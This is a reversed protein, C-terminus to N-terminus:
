VNIFDTEFIKLCEFNLMSVRLKAIYRVRTHVVVKTCHHSSTTIGKVLPCNELFDLMFRCASVKRFETIRTVGTLLGATVRQLELDQNFAVKANVDVLQRGQQPLLEQWKLAYFEPQKVFVHVYEASVARSLLRFSMVLETIKERSPRRRAGEDFLELAAQCLTFWRLQLHEFQRYDIKRGEYHKSMLDITRDFYTGFLRLDEIVQEEKRWDYVEDVKPANENMQLLEHLSRRRLLMNM